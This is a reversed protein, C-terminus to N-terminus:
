TSGKNWQLLELAQKHTTPDGAALVEGAAAKVGASVDDWRLPAGSWDTVVGGAGQIIPVLAMYDYPKLDAEVVLDVHGAALLGYAYCDCGYLPIRVRDRVRNFAQETDGAFMHPTTAYMYANGIDGCERTAIPRGNLTSPAGAVGVWRERTVPQDIVGLVPQGNHLLAILTGFLPKGTIFSKTGDIPDLVWLWSDSTGNSSGLELGHEEGFVSHQPVTAKLLHRMADEAQRDAITVPSADSKSDVNLTSSRFYQSTVKGAADALDHALKIFALPVQQENQSAITAQQQM